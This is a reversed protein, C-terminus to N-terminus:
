VPREHGSLESEGSVDEGGKEGQPRQSVQEQQPRRRLVNHVRAMLIRADFPKVIYDDAGGELGPVEYEAGARATLIIIPVDSHARLERALTLGDEHPLILDLIVLNPPKEAIHRRMEGGNSATRVGYGERGLYNSLTRCIRPDDDVVLIDAVIPEHGGDEPQGEETM